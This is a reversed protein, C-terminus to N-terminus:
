SNLQRIIKRLLHDFNDVAKSDTESVGYLLHLRHFFDIREVSPRYGGPAHEDRERRLYCKKTHRIIVELTRKMAGYKNKSVEMTMIRNIDPSISRIDGKEGLLSLMAEKFSAVHGPHSSLYDNLPRLRFAPLQREFWSRRQCVRLSESNLWEQHILNETDRLVALREEKEQVTAMRQLMTVVQSNVERGFDYRAALRGSRIVKFEIDELEKQM